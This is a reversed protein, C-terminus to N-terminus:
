PNLEISQLIEERIHQKARRERTGDIDSPVLVDRRSAHGPQRIREALHKALRSM